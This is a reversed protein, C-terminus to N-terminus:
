VIGLWRMWSPHGHECYGDAEVPQCGDLATFRSERDQAVLVEVPPSLAVCAKCLLTGQTDHGPVLGEAQRRCLECTVSV